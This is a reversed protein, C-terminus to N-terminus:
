RKGAGPGTTELSRMKGVTKKPGRIEILHKGPLFGELNFVGFEPHFDPGLGTEIQRLWKPVWSWRERSKM